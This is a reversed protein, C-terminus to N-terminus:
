TAKPTPILRKAYPLRDANGYENYHYNGNAKLHNANFFKHDPDNKAWFACEKKISYGEPEWGNIWFSAISGEDLFGFHRAKLWALQIKHLYDLKPLRLLTFYQYWNYSNLPLRGIKFGCGTAQFDTKGHHKYEGAVNNMGWSVRKIDIAAIQQPPTPKPNKWWFFHMPSGTCDHLHSPWWNMMSRIHKFGFKSMKPDMTDGRSTGFAFETQIDPQGKKLLPYYNHVDRDCYVWASVSVETLDSFQTYLEGSM